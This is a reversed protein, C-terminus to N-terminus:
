GMTPNHVTLGLRDALAAQRRDSTVFYKVLVGTDFYFRM